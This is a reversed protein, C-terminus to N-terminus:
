TVDNKVKIGALAPDESRKSKKSKDKTKITEGKEKRAVGATQSRGLILWLALKKVTTGREGKEKRREGKEKRAV